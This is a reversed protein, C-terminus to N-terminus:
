FSHCQWNKTKELVVDLYNLYETKEADIFVLDFIQDLAPVIEIANGVYQHIQDATRVETLIVASCKTYNKMSILQTCAGM